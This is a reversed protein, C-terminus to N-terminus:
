RSTLAGRLFEIGVPFRPNLAPKWSSSAFSDEFVAGQETQVYVLDFDKDDAPVYIFAKQGILTANPLAYNHDLTVRGLVLITRNSLDIDKPYRAYNVLFHFLVPEIDNPFAIRFLTPEVQSSKISFSAHFRERYMSQFDGLIKDLEIANWGKTIILKDNAQNPVFEVRHARLHYKPFLAVAGFIIAALILIKQTMSM